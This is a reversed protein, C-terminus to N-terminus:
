TTNNRPIISKGFAIVVWSSRPFKSIQIKLTPFKLIQIKLAVWSSRPFKLIQIKLAVWSSTQFNWFRFNCLAVWSSRPFKLIQINLPRGLIIKSNEFDSNEFPSGVLHDQFNAFKLPRGLISPNIGNGFRNTTWRSVAGTTFKSSFLFICRLKGVPGIAAPLRGM